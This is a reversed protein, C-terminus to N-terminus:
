QRRGDADIGRCVRAWAALEIQEDATLVAWWEELADHFQARSVSKFGGDATVLELVASWHALVEARLTKM